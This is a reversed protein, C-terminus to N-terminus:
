SSVQLGKKNTTWEHLVLVVILLYYTNCFGEHKTYTNQQRILKLIKRQKGQTVEVLYIGTRYNNGIHVISNAMGSRTEIIKGSVDTVRM